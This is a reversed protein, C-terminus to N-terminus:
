WGDKSSLTIAWQDLKMAGFIYPPELSEGFRRSPFVMPLPVNQLNNFAM